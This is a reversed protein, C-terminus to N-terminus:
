FGFGFGFPPGPRYYYPRSYGYYPSPGYGYPYGGYSYAPPGYYSRYYGRYYRRYRRRASLDVQDLNQIGDLKRPAADVPTWLSLFFLATVISLLTLFKSM